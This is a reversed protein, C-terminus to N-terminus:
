HLDPDRYDDGKIEPLDVVRAPTKEITTTPESLTRPISILSALIDPTEGVRISYSFLYFSHKSKLIHAASCAIYVGGHRVVGM